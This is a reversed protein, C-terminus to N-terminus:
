NSSSGSTTRVTRTSVSSGYGLSLDAPGGHFRGWVHFRGWISDLETCRISGQLGCDASMEGSVRHGPQLLRDDPVSSERPM